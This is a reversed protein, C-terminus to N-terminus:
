LNKVVLDLNNFIQSKQYEGWTFSDLRTAYEPNWMTSEPNRPNSEPNWVYPNWIGFKKLNRIGFNKVGAKMREEFALIKCNSYSTILRFLFNM